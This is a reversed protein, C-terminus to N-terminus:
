RCGRPAGSGISSAEVCCYSSLRFRGIYQRCKARENHNGDTKGSETAVADWGELSLARAVTGLRSLANRINASGQANMTPATREAVRVMTDWGAPSIASAAVGLRDHKNLTNAAYQANKTPSTCESVKAV